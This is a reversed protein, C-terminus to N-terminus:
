QIILKGTSAFGSSSSLSFFYLGEALDGRSLTFEHGTIGPVTRLVRGSVDMISLTFSDHNENAFRLTAEDRFPNPFVQLNMATNRDVVATVTYTNTTTNTLIPPNFDFYISASNTIVGGVPLSSSAKVSYSAFGHSGPEDASSDPLMIGNFEFVLINGDLHWTHDHSAGVVKLTGLDLDLDLTDRLIVNTAYFTGTNQFRITYNLEQGPDVTNAPDAKKDNPDYSSVVVLDLTDANNSPSIEGVPVNVAIEHHIPTGLALGVPTHLTLGVNGYTYPAVTGLNWTATTGSYTVGASGSVFTLAPDHNWTLSMAQPVPSNNQYWAWLTRDFGPVHGGCCAYVNLDIYPAIANIGFDKGFTTAMSGTSTWSYLGSLPITYAAWTPLAALKIDYAGPPLSIGYKGLSNTSVLVPAPFPSPTIEVLYGSLPIETPDMVGDGDDDFFVTGEVYDMGACAPDVIITFYLTDDSGAILSDFVYVTGTYTGAVSYTHTVAPGFGSSGDGFDWWAYAYTSVGALDTVSFYVPTSTCPSYPLYSLAWSPTTQSWLSTTALLLLTLSLILKKM